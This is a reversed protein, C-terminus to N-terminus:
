ILEHMKPINENKWSTMPPGSHLQYELLLHGNRFCSSWEYAQTKRIGTDNYATQFMVVTEAATKGWFVSVHQEKTKTMAFVSSHHLTMAFCLHVVQCMIVCKIYADLPNYCPFSSSCSAQRVSCKKNSKTVRLEYINVQLCTSVYLNNIYWLLLHIHTHVDM